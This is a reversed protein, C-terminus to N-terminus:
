ALDEADLVELKSSIGKKNQVFLIRRPADIKGLVEEAKDIEKKNMRGWKVELAIEPKKFKLLIGDIDFDKAEFISEKLGYKYALYERINSEILRPILEALILKAKKQNAEESFNYKEDAYFYLKMLPSVLDYKYNEKNFILIRKIVGFEILNKLYQQIITSSEKKILKKSFLYNAIEGAKNKGISVARLVGEYIRSIQREEEIFIEGLLAPVTYKTALMIEATIDRAEKGKKIGEIVIPERCFLSLELAEKKDFGLKRIEELCSDLPILGLSVESVLGLLPSKSSLIKKSLYLTSSLLIIKGGRGLSHLFDLFDNGLRHFEDIVISKNNKAYEKLLEIFTEYSLTKKNIITRDRKIFFYEDFKVFNKVLFTKGTKRRGYLLIWKESENVFKSEKRKIIIM